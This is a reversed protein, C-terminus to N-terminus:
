KSLAMLQGIRYSMLPVSVQYLKALKEVASTDLLDIGKADRRIWEEPMLLAIAFANAEDEMMDDTM